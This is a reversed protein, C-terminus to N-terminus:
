TNTENSKSHPHIPIPRYWGATTWSGEFSAAHFKAVSEDFTVFDSHFTQGSGCDIGDTHGCLYAQTPKNM